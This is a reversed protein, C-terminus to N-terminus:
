PFRIQNTIRNRLEGRGFKEPTESSIKPNRNDFQVVEAGFRVVHLARAFAGIGTRRALNGDTVPAKLEPKVQPSQRAPCPGAIQMKPRIDWARGQASGRRQRAGKGATATIQIRNEIGVVHKPLDVGPLNQDINDSRSCQRIAHVQVAGGVDGIEIEADIDEFRSGDRELCDGDGIRIGRPLRAILQLDGRRRAVGFATKECVVFGSRLPGQRRTRAVAPFRQGFDPILVARLSRLNSRDLIGTALDYALCLPNVLDKRPSRFQYAFGGIGVDASRLQRPREAIVVVRRSGIRAVTTDLHNDLWVSEPPPINVTGAIGGTPEPLNDALIAIASM